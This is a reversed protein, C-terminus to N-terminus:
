GGVQKKLNSLGKEMMAGYTSEYFLSSFKQWPYWGLDFDMYWQLTLSDSTPTGYIRWGSIVPKQGEQQWRVVYTSDTQQVVQKNMKRFVKASATDTYAPHWSTDTKLLSFIQARRNPMNTARSLRINSPFLLSILTVLVLLFFISLLGLKIFRM